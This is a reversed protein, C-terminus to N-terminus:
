QFMGNLLHQLEQLCKVMFYMQLPITWFLIPQFDIPKPAKQKDADKKKEEERKKKAEKAAFYRDIAKTVFLPDTITQPQTIPPYGYNNREFSGGYQQPDPINIWM